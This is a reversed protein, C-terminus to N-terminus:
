YTGPNDCPPPSDPVNEVQRRASQTVRGDDPMPLFPLNLDLTEFAVTVRVYDGRRVPRGLANGDADTWEFGAVVPSVAPQGAHDDIRPEVCTAWDQGVVMKRAAERANASATTLAWFLYGYQILGFVLLLMLPAVLGFELATAGTEARGATRRRM